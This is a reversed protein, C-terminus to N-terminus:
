PKAERAAIMADAVVYACLADSASIARRWQALKEPDNGTFIRPDPQAMFGALAQGAFYDRLTMGPHGDTGERIIRESLTGVDQRLEDMANCPFAPGGDKTPDSM